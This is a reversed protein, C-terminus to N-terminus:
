QRLMSRSRKLKKRINKRYQTFKRAGTYIGYIKNVSYSNNRPKKVAISDNNM